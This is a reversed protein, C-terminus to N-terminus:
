DDAKPMEIRCCGLNLRATTSGDGPQLVGPALSYLRYRGQRENRVLGAHRLVTLHHSANVVTTELMAAVESVNRPGDQLYRVIRLREPSALAALLDACHNPELPDHM